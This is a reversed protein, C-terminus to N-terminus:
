RWGETYRPEARERDENEKKREPKRRFCKDVRQRRSALICTHLATDAHSTDNGASKRSIKQNRRM